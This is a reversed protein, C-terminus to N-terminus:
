NGGLKIREICFFQRSDLVCISSDGFLDDAENECIFLGVGIPDYERDDIEAGEEARLCEGFCCFVLERLFKYQKILITIPQHPRLQTSCDSLARFMGFWVILLPGVQPLIGGGEKTYRLFCCSDVRKGQFRCADM